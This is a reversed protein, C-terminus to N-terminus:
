RRARRQNVIASLELAALFARTDGEEDEAPLEHVHFGSGDKAFRLIMRGAEPPVVGEEVLALKYAAVQFRMEDYLGSSTKYDAVVLKGDVMGVLDCTGAYDHQRSYIIREAHVVQLDVCLAWYRFAECARRAQPNVPLDPHQNRAFAEAYAHTLKGIDAAEDSTSRHARKMDAVLRGIQIEDLAIGPRLTDAVHQAAMKVMWPGIAPKDIVKLAGTVGQCPKGNALYRHAKEDFEVVVEGGYLTHTIM